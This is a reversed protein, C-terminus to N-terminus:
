LKIGNQTNFPRGRIVAKDQSAAVISANYRITADGTLAGTGGTDRTGGSRCVNMGNHDHIVRPHLSMRVSLNIFM